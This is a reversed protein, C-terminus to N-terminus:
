HMTKISCFIRTRNNKCTSARATRGAKERWRAFAPGRVGASRLLKNHTRDNPCQPIPLGWRRAMGRVPIAPTGGAVATARVRHRNHAHNSCSRSFHARSARSGPSTQQYRMARLGSLRWRMRPFDNAEARVCVKGTDLFAVTKEPTKTRELVSGRIRQRPRCHTFREHPYAPWGSGARHPYAWIGRRDSYGAAAGSHNGPPPQVPKRRRRSVAPAEM